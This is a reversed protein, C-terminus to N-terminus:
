RTTDSRPARASTRARSTSRRGRSARGSRTSAAARGSRRRCPSTARETRGPPREARHSLGHCREGAARGIQRSQGRDLERERGLDVDSRPVRRGEPEGDLRVRPCAHALPVRQPEARVLPQDDPRGAFYDVISRNHAVYHAQMADRGLVDDEPTRYVLRFFDRLWGRWVYRAEGLTAATPVRGNGFSTSLYGIFSDYWQEPSAMVEDVHKYYQAAESLSLSLLLALAGGIVITSVLARKTKKSM